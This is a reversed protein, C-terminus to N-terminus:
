EEGDVAERWRRLSVAIGLLTLEPVLREILEFGEFLVPADGGTAVVMPFGGTVEAYQETLERVMGRMGYFVASRMAEVTNHGVPELPKDFTIEPLQATRWHMADLMTQAGPAIAGGHFTGDGDILDITMATGADVVICAQKLRDYAAAANLLRDEGVIAERDLRRGIAIPVDRETRLVSLGTIKAVHGLVVDTLTPNVSALVAVADSTERLHEHAKALPVALGQSLETNPVAWSDVLNDEVFVGLKTRTNGITIALLNQPM